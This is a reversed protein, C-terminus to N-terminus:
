FFTGSNAEASRAKNEVFLTKVRRNSCAIFMPLPTLVPAVKSSHSWTENIFHSLFSKNCWRKAVTVIAVIFVM